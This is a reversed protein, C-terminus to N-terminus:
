SMKEKPLTSLISRLKHTGRNIHSKVTGLPLALIASAERHSFGYSCCLTIAAAETRDLQRMANELSLQEASLAEYYEPNISQERAYQQNIEEERQQRRKHQLFCRYAISCLWGEFSGSARYSALKQYALM